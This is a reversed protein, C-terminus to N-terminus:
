SRSAETRHASAMAYMWGYPTLTAATEGPSPFRATVKVDESDCSWCKVPEPDTGGTECAKCEWAARMPVLTDATLM